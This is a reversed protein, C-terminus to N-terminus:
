VSLTQHFNSTMFEVQEPTINIQKERPLAHPSFIVFDDHSTQNQYFIACHKMRPHEVCLFFSLLKSYQSLGLSRLFGKLSLLQWTQAVLMFSRDNFSNIILLIQYFNWSLLKLLVSAISSWFEDIQFNPVNNLENQYTRAWLDPLNSSRVM